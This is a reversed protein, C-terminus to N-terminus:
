SVVARAADAADCQKGVMVSLARAMQWLAAVSEADDRSGPAARQAIAADLADDARELKAEIVEIAVTCATESRHTAAELADCMAVLEATHVPEPSRALHRLVRLLNNIDVFLNGLAALPDAEIGENPTGTM